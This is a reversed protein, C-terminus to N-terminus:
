YHYQDITKLILRTLKRLFPCYMQWKGSPHTPILILAKNFLVSLPRAITKSTAKLMKHSIGDPGVTKNTDLIKLIDCVEQETIENMSFLQNTKLNMDPLQTNSDDLSSICAFPQALIECKDKDSFASTGDPTVLPPIIQKNESDKSMVGKAFSWWKKSNPVTNELNTVLSSAYHQKANKILNNTKNRHKKYNNWDQDM